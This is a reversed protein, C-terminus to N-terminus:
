PGGEFVSSAEAVRGTERDALQVRLSYDGPALEGPKFWVVVRRMGDAEWTQRALGFAALPQPRGAADVLRTRLEWDALEDDPSDGYSMICAERQEGPVLRGHRLPVFIKGAAHFPLEPREIRQSGVPALVWEEPDDMLVPPYVLLDTTELDPVHVQEVVLGKLKSANERVMIRVSHEGPPLAFGTHIQLGRGKLKEGWRNSELRLRVAMHDLMRGEASLAYGVVDLDVAGNPPVSLAWGPITVVTPVSLEGSPGRYPVAMVDLPIANSEIGKVLADADALREAFAGRPKSPDRDRYGSRHSVRTGDVKVKVKVKHFKGPEAKATPEFALLYYHRTSELIEGLGITLDNADKIFQGGSQAAIQALSERGRPTAAQEEYSAADSTAAALGSVDVTHVVADSAAFAEALRVTRNRASASGFHRESDVDWLRGETVDRRSQIAEDGQAGLLTSQDFGSSFYVVQKRGQVADLIEGLGKMASLLDEVKATYAAADQRSSVAQLERLEEAFRADNAGVPEGRDVAQLAGSDFALQLMDRPRETEGLGLDAIARAVHERDTTFSLLLELGSRSSYTAAGVLDAPQLQERVFQQAAERVRVLGPISSFSLDFLLLFQRRAYAATTTGGDAEPLPPAAADIEQFELIRVRDGDSEIEFDDATLGPVSKGSKDTVFVPVTVLATSTGFELTPEEQAAATVREHGAAAVLTLVLLSVSVRRM